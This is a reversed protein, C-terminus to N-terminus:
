KSSGGGSTESSGLIGFITSLAGFLTSLESSSPM